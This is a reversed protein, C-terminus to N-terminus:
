GSVSEGEMMEEEWTRPDNCVAMRCLDPDAVLSLTIPPGGPKGPLDLTVSCDELLLRSCTNGELHVLEEEESPTQPFSHFL